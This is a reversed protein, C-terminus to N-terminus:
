NGSLGLRQAVEALAQKNGALKVRGALVQSAAFAQSKRRGLEGALEVDAIEITADVPGPTEVHEVKPPSGPCVDLVFCVGGIIYAVSRSQGGRDGAEKLKAQIEEFLSQHAEPLPAQAPARPPPPVGAFLALDCLGSVIFRCSGLATFRECGASPAAKRGWIITYVGPERPAAIDLSAWHEGSEPPRWSSAEVKGSRMPRYPALSSMAVGLPDGEVLVVQDGSARPMPPLLQLLLPACPPTVLVPADVRANSWRRPSAKLEPRCCCRRKGTELPQQHQVMVRAQRATGLPADCDSAVTAEGDSGWGASHPSAKESDAEQPDSDSCGLFSGSSECRGRARAPKGSLHRKHATRCCASIRCMCRQFLSRWAAVDASECAQVGTNLIFLECAVIVLHHTAGLPLALCVSYIGPNAPVEVDLECTSCPLESPEKTGDGSSFGRAGGLIDAATLVHAEACPGRAVVLVAAGGMAGGAAGSTAALLPASIKATVWAGPVVALVRCDKSIVNPMTAVTRACVLLAGEAESSSEVCASVDGDVDAIPLKPQRRMASVLHKLRLEPCIKPPLTVQFKAEGLPKPAKARVTDGPRAARDNGKARGRFTVHFNGEFRPGPLAVSGQVESAELVELVTTGLELQLSLPRTPKVALFWTVSFPISHPIELKCIEDGAATETHPSEGQRGIALREVISRVPINFRDVEVGKSFSSGQTYYIVVHNGPQSAEFRVSTKGETWKFTDLGPGKVAVYDRSKSPTPWSLTFPALCVPPDPAVKFRSSSSSSGGAATTGVVAAEGCSMTADIKAPTSAAAVPETPLQALPMDASAMGKLLVTAPASKAADAAPAIQGGDAKAVMDKKPLDAFAPLSAPGDVDPPKETTLAWEVAMDTETTALGFVTPAPLTPANSGHDGLAGFRLSNSCPKPSCPPFNCAGEPMAQTPEPLNQLEPPQVFPSEPPKPSAPLDLTPAAPPPDYGVISLSSLGGGGVQDSPFDCTAADVREKQGGGGEGFGVMLHADPALETAAAVDDCLNSSLPAAVTAM